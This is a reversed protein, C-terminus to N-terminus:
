RREPLHNCSDQNRLTTLNEWLGKKIEFKENLEQWATIIRDDEAEELTKLNDNNEDM